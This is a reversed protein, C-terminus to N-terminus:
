QNPRSPLFGENLKELIATAVKDKEIEAKSLHDNHDNSGECKKCGRRKYRSRPLFHNYILKWVDHIVKDQARLEPTLPVDPNGDFMPTSGGCNLCYRERYAFAFTFILPAGCGCVRITPKEKRPSLTELAKRLPTKM